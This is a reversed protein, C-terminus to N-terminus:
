DHFKDKMLERIEKICNVYAELLKKGHEDDGLGNESLDRYFTELAVRVVMAQGSSLLSGNVEIDPEKHKM